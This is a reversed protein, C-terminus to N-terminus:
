PTTVVARGFGRFIEGANREAGCWRALEAPVPGVDWKRSHGQVGRADVTYVNHRARDPAVHIAPDIIGDLPPTRILYV